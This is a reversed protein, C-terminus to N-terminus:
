LLKPRNDGANFGRTQLDILMMICCGAHYLHNEGSEPDIDEGMLWAILHRQCADYVRTWKLGDGKRYNYESYKGIGFTMIRSIGLLAQPPLLHIQPKGEDKKIAKDTM